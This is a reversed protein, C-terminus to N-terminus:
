FSEWDDSGGAVAAPAAVRAAVPTSKVPRGLAAPRRLPPAARPEARPGSASPAVAIPVSVRTAELRFVAVVQVLQRAQDRLSEAAAASEEVLAANQQTAQDMQAIAEGLQGVGSSQESSAASIEGMIDTVRAISSVIEDMTLGARDVLATGHEVREVSASILRKIERAADASRQALGRVEGAVVAFGRGQEGARAAEVAANLALINTQFAIGDIVGIIDVIRRSSDNIGKMTDVVEGVVEGGKRAVASAGLALQNASLANDANQRVTTGLQEMSAAAQQLASAQEETRASLDNSGQSIQSAATAVSESNARVNGVVGALSGQMALLAELLHAIEDDGPVRVRTTLDGAAIARALKLADGVPRTIRRALLVGVAAGASGVALMLALSLLLARRSRAAADAATAVSDAAIKEGSEALLRAPERDMGAVASDGASPDFAAAEFAAFGKRYDIGMKAHAAAFREVLTRSEGAPLSALLARAKADVEAERSAFAGWHKELKVPDKGRLLTDKWEQVQTKFTALLDAIAREHAHQAGVELQYRTATQDLSCLGVLAAATLAALMGTITLPLKLKLHMDTDLRSKLKAPEFQSGAAPAGGSM